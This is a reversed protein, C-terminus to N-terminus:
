KLDWNCLLGCRMIREGFGVVLEIKTTIANFQVLPLERPTRSYPEEIFSRDVLGIKVRCLGVAQRRDHMRCGLSQLQVM